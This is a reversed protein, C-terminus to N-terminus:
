ILMNLQPTFGSPNLDYPQNQIVLSPQQNQIFQYPQSISSIQDNQPIQAIQQPQQDPSNPLLHQGAQAFDVERVYVPSVLNNNIYNLVRTKCGNVLDNGDQYNLRLDKSKTTYQENLQSYYQMTQAKVLMFFNFVQLATPRNQPNDDLMQEVITKYYKCYIVREQYEISFDPFNFIPNAGAQDYFCWQALDTKYKKTLVFGSNLLEFIIFGLSYIDVKSDYNQGSKVEPAVYIPTGVDTDAVQKYSMFGFDSILPIDIEEMIINEPKMDRHIYNAQHLVNTGDLLGLIVNVKWNINTRYPYYQDKTMVNRLSGYNSKNMQIYFSFEKGTLNKYQEVCCSTYSMLNFMNGQEKYHMSKLGVNIDEIAKKIMYDDNAPVVSNKIIASEGTQKDNVEYVDGFQSNNVKRITNRGDDYPLQTNVILSFCKGKGSDPVNDQQVHYTCLFQLAEDTRGEDFAKQLDARPIFNTSNINSILAFIIFIM